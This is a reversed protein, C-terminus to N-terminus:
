ILQYLRLRMLSDNPPSLGISYLCCRPHVTHGTWSETQVGSGIDWRIRYNDDQEGLSHTKDFEKLYELATLCEKQIISLDFGELKLNDGIPWEIQPFATEYVLIYGEGYPISAERYAGSDECSSAYFNFDINEEYFDVNGGHVIWTGDGADSASLYLNIEHM